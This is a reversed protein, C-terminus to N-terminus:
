QLISHYGHQNITGQIIFLDSVIDGAFCGWKMVVGRGHKMTPAENASIM